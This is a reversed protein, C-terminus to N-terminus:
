SLVYVVCLLIVFLLSLLHVMLLLFRREHLYSAIIRKFWPYPM